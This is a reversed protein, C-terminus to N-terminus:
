REGIWDYWDRLEGNPPLDNAASFHRLTPGIESVPSRRTATELRLLGRRSRFHGFQVACDHDLSAPSRELGPVRGGTVARGQHQGM